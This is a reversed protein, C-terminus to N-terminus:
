GYWDRCQALSLAHEIGVDLMLSFVIAVLSTFQAESCLIAATDLDQASESLAVINHHTAHTLDLHSSSSASNRVSMIMRM